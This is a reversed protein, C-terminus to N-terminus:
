TSSKLCTPPENFHKRVIDSCQKIRRTVEAMPLSNSQLAADDVHSGNVAYMAAAFAQYSANRHFATVAAKHLMEVTICPKCRAWAETMELLSSSLKYNANEPSLSLRACECATLVLKRGQATLPKGHVIGLLCLMWDGYQCRAWAVKM